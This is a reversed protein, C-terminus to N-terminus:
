KRKNKVKAVKPPKKADKFQKRIKNELSTKLFHCPECLVQLNSEECWVNNILEDMSMDEMSRDLEIVPSLHDVSTTWTPVILGCENCFSWKM